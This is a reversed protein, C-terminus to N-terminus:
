AEVKKQFGLLSRLSLLQPRLLVLSATGYVLVGIVVQVLLLLWEHPTAQAVLPGSLRLVGVMLLAAGISPTICGMLTGFRIHILRTSFYLAPLANVLSAALYAAAVGEIGWQAGVVVAGVQLVAGVLGLRLMLGTSGRAMLVTGTSSVLSQIFGVPALWGLLAVSAQWSAGLMVHVFPERLAFLGAMLPATLFAIFGLSRLYLNAVETVSGQSRSMVPFLVRAVVYTMNQLPFLMLRYAMSYAGLVAAGLIRGVVMSDANRSIYLVVNFMSLNGSFRAISKFEARNWHRLPRFTSRLVIIASTVLTAVIMQAVLSFVGAGRWALLLAAGLGALSAVVEAGAVVSFKSERELLAQHVVSAGTLPFVIALMCLVTALQPEHFIHATIPAACIIAVGILLGLALNTWYVTSAMTPSVDRSQILAAATGMDRFLYAMNTVIAALAMLGYADPSLLRALVTMSVLQSVVRAGQSLLVWRTNSFNSAM